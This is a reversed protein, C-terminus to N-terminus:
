LSREPFSCTATGAVSRASALQRRRRTQADAHSGSGSVGESSGGVGRTRCKQQREFPTCVGDECSSFERCTGTSGNDLCPQGDEIPESCRGDMCVGDVCSTVVSSEGCPEGPARLEVPACKMTKEDCYTAGSCNLTANCVEGARPLRSCTGEFCRLGPGCEFPDASRLTTPDLGCREGERGLRSCRRSELDCKTGEVCEYPSSCPGGEESIKLQACYTLDCLGDHFSRNCGSVCNYSGIRERFAGSCRQIQDTSLHLATAQSRCVERFRAYHVSRPVSPGELYGGGPLDVNWIADLYRDCADQEAAADPGGTCAVLLLGAVFLCSRRSSRQTDKTMTTVVKLM